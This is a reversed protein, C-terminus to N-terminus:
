CFLSLVPNPLMTWVLYGFCVSVSCKSESVWGAAGVLSRAFFLSCLPSCVHSLAYDFYPWCLLCSCLCPWCPWCLLGPWCFLCSCLCRCEFLALMVFVFLCRCNKEKKKLLCGCV